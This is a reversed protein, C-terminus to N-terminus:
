MDFTPLFPMLAEIYKTLTKTTIEHYEAIEKKTIKMRSSNYMYELAAALAPPNKFAFGKELASECIVFWMQFLFTDEIIMPEIDNYLIDAVELARLFSGLAPDDQLNHGLAQALFLKEMASYNDVAITMPNAIIEHKHPTKSLLYLGFLRESRYEHELKGTIYEVDYIIGNEAGDEILEAHAWPEFGEKSPDIELLMEWVTHSFDEHGTFFASHSLWFYFGPDGKYGKAYISKLWKYAEEYHGLLALTAGLKFRNEFNYPHLKLLAEELYKLEEEEKEYYAIVAINCLAHLNGYNGLLVEHLLARAQENEGTYFYALALNNYASWFTPNEAIINEFIEIARDHEGKEMLQRAREQEHSLAPNQTEEKSPLQELVSSAFEIIDLAEAQYEETDDLEIYLEAYHLADELFGLSASTEALFLITEPNRPELEDAQLLLERADKTNGLELQVVAYQLYIMADNPSLEVARLLYKSAKPFDGRDMCQQAKTFYFDGTPLFSVINQQTKHNDKNDELFDEESFCFSRSNVNRQM